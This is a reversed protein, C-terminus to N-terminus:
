DWDVDLIVGTSSVKVDVDEGNHSDIEIEYVIKGNDRDVDVDEVTGPVKALAIDIAQQKTIKGAPKKSPAPPTQNKAPANHNDRDDQDDDDYLNMDKEWTYAGTSAHIYLEDQDDDRQDFEVEYYLTGNIRKVDIEEIKGHNSANAAIKKAHDRTIKVTSSAAQSASAKKVDEKASVLSNMGIGTTLLAAAVTTTIIWKKKSM